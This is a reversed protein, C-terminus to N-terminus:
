PSAMSGEQSKAGEDAFIILQLKRAERKLPINGFDFTSTPIM